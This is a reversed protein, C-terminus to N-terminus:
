GDLEGQTNTASRIEEAPPAEASHAAHRGKTEPDATSAPTSEEPKSHRGM